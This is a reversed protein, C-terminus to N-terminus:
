PREREWEKDRKKERVCYKKNWHWRQTRAWAIRIGADIVVNCFLPLKTNQEWINRSNRLGVVFDIDKQKNNRHPTNDIRSEITIKVITMCDNWQVLSLDSEWKEEIGLWIVNFFSENENRNVLLLFLFFHRLISVQLGESRKTKLEILVIIIVM